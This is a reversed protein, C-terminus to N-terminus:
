HHVCLRKQGPKFLAEPLLNAPIKDPEPRARTAVEKFEKVKLRSLLDAEINLKGPIHEARFLINHRLCTLVLPRVLSMVVKDRSSMKNIIAVVAENDSMFTVCHNKMLYGYMHVAVMIPYMELIQIHFPDMDRPWQGYFWHSGYIGAYGLSAASDTFLHLRPSAVFTEDLFFAKGNFSQLFQKWVILDARVAATIRIRHNRHKVGITLDILRRLFARGPVVSCTFNLLGILSQIQCLTVKRKKSVTVIQDLCKNVKDMPMRAELAVTDLEIGLFPLVTAPGCTKEPALPVGLQFCMLQFCRLDRQCLAQTTNVMCFDDLVHRIYTIHFKTHAIWELASSFREFLACSYSSGMPLCKYHYYMGEWYMGTLHYSDPHLPIIWFADSIDTKALYSSKGVLKIDSIVHQVTAYKVTADEHSIGDNVSSGAPYSEHHIMRFEGPTKKPVVGLPSTVFPHFPPASFPGAIRSYGTEKYLKDSIVQPHKFASPLNTHTQPPYKGCFPIRFGETFGQVLFERDAM